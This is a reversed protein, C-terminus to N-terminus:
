VFDGGGGEELEGDEIFKGIERFFRGLNAGHDVDFYVGSQRCEIPTAIQGIFHSLTEQACKEGFYNSYRFSM